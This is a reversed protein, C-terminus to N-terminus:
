VRIGKSNGLNFSIRPLADYNAKLIKYLCAINSELRNYDAATPVNKGPEWTKAASLPIKYGNENILQINDEIANIESAYILSMNNKETEMKFLNYYKFLKDAMDKLHAINGVIRNYDSSNFFDSTTWNIKPEVWM